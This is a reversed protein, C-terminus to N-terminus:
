CRGLNKSPTEPAMNRCAQAYSYFGREAPTDAAITACLGCPWRGREAHESSFVVRVVPQVDSRSAEVSCSGQHQLLQLSGSAVATPVALRKPLVHDWSGKKSSAVTCADGLCMRCSHQQVDSLVHSHRLRAAFTLQELVPCLCPSCDANGM